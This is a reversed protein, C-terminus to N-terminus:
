SLLGMHHTSGCSVAFVNVLRKHWTSRISPGDLALQANNPKVDHPQVLQRYRNSPVYSARIHDPLLCDFPIYGGCCPDPSNCSLHLHM